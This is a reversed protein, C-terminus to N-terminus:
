LYNIVSTDKLIYANIDILRVIVNYTFHQFTKLIATITILIVVVLYLKGYILKCVVVNVNNFDRYM